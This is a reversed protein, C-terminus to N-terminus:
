VFKQPVLRVAKPYNMELAVRQIYREIEETKALVFPISGLSFAAWYICIAPRGYDQFNARMQRHRADDQNRPRKHCTPNAVWKADDIKLGIASELVRRIRSIELPKEGKKPPYSKNVDRTLERMSPPRVPNKGGDLQKALHKRWAELEMEIMQCHRKHDNLQGHPMKASPPRKKPKPKPVLANCKDKKAKSDRLELVIDYISEIMVKTHIKAHLQRLQENHTKNMSWIMGRAKHLKDRLSNIIHMLCDIEWSADARETCADALEAFLEGRWHIVNNGDADFILEFCRTRIHEVSANAGFLSLMVLKVSQVDADSCTTLMMTTYLLCIATTAYNCFKDAGLLTISGDDEVYLSNVAPPPGNAIIALATKVFAYSLVHPDDVEISHILIKYVARSASDFDERAVAAYIDQRRKYYNPDTM